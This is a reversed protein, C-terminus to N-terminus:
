WSAGLSGAPLAPFFGSKASLSTMVKKLGGSIPAYVNFSFLSYGFPTARKTGYMRVWRAMVPAFKIDEAGGEGDSTAFVSKWTEGDPGVQVAYAAAYADEWVLRVHDITQPKGLDVAIWQPDSFASSWRTGDDGDVANQAQVNQNQAQVDQAQVSSATVLCGQALDHTSQESLPVAMWPISETYTAALRVTAQQRIDRSSAAAEIRYDGADAKWRKGPVDCYAFARPAILFSVTKTQGPLLRVKQFGKLERIPKDIKPFPDHVYLEVVEAGARPGANTVALGATITGAPSLVPKSLHIPGYKFATYSLGYGFPFLPTIKKKDFHRYGVYIGEAYTVQGHVGPFHGFDPYDERAAGLTTPLKGSPNVDGFLIAALANGGEQGPFWAEILDPVQNLWGTMLCPTGNNLIVITRKNVAAVARILADQDNPLAMSPRDMTEGETGATGVCVIAVDAEGAAHVAAAFRSQGPVTWDLRVTADGVAQFYEARLDYVHGAELNVGATQTVAAGELWHDILLKGDLFLRCGDDATFDLTYLGTAPATLKGSWRVSFDTRSLGPAPPATNWNNQIQPDTRVLAPVGALDKNAFYEAYLGSGTGAAPTLVSAPVPEGQQGEPVSYVAIDPGVRKKIGTLPDVAGLPQVAASGAAGFQMGTAAPGIVAISHVQKTNLPLLGGSNKLLVISGAAAEFALRQHEPSNVLTEDRRRPPNLLGVRLLTILIRKVNDDITAQTIRGQQLARAVKEPSLFGPGPMELDNGANVVGATEHVAGWDSMVMGDYGWGQKLVDTLLYRNATAHNGNIKNYSSMVTWPHGEKVSMEFAPLYIEHLTRQDVRVNVTNRDSEENNCAFHKLCASCGTSQVGQIYASSLRGALFPDESFYEGNRGGLPSRQINVAPGLLVQSGTGKNLAEEGIAAGIQKALAPDWASALTVGAPFLTAPGLTGDMGGRVGQAGDVMSMAPIGLRPLPQTTFATGTLLSLKEEQTLRHFLDDARLRLPANPDKYIPDKYIPDKYIPDKYIPDKYIPDKYLPVPPAAQAAAHAAAFLSAILLCGAAIWDM